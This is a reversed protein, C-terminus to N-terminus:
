YRGFPNRIVATRLIRGTAVAEYYPDVIDQPIPYAADVGVDEVHYGIRAAREELHRDLARGIAQYDSDSLVLVKV